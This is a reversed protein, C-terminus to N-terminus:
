SFGFLGRLENFRLGFLFSSLLLLYNKVLLFCRKGAIDKSSGNSRYEIQLNLHKAVGQNAFLM